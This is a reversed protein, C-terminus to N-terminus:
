HGRSPSGRGGTGGDVTRLKIMIPGLDQEKFVGEPPAEQAARSNFLLPFVRPESFIGSKDQVQVTLTINVFDLGFPTSTILYLYGSLDKQNGEKVKIIRLPYQGVGPQDVIAYINKMEGNPDSVNLYIKWNQRPSIEKAAFTQTFVPIASGNGQAGVFSSTGMVLFIVLVDLVKILKDMRVGEKEQNKCIRKNKPHENIPLPNM